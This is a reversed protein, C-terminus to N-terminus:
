KKSWDTVKGTRNNTKTGDASYTTNISDPINKDVFEKASIQGDKISEKLLDLGKEGISNPANNRDKELQVKTDDIKQKIDHEPKAITKDLTKELVGINEKNRSINNIDQMITENGSNLQKEVYHKMQDSSKSEKEVETKAMSQIKNFEKMEQENLSHTKTEGNSYTVAIGNKVGTEASAEAKVIFGGGIGIGVKAAFDSSLTQENGKRQEKSESIQENLIQAMKHSEQESRSQESSQSKDWVEGGVKAYDVSKSGDKNLTGSIETSGDASKTTFTQVGKDDTKVEATGDGGTYTRSREEGNAFTTTTSSGNGHNVTVDGSMINGKQDFIAGDSVTGSYQKGDSGTFTGTAQGNLTKQGDDGTKMSGTINQSNVGMGMNSAVNNLASNSGIDTQIKNGLEGSQTNVSNQNDISSGSKNTYSDNQQYDFGSNYSLMGKTSNANYNNHSVNGMSLNGSSVSGATATSTRDLKMSLSNNLAALSTLSFGTVIIMAITPISWYMASATNIWDTISSDIAGKNTFAMDGYRILANKVKITIIHNLIVDGFHWCALWALMLIYGIITKVGIPTIMLLMLLPTLGLIIVTLIGKMVPIFKAGLAGSIAMQATAAASAQAVGFAGISSDMGNIAAYRNFSNSFMNMTTNQMLVQQASKASDLLFNNAEGLKTYVISSAVGGLSEGLHEMGVGSFSTYTTLEGSITGYAKPCTTLYPENNDKSRQLLYRAPHTDGLYAFLNDARALMMFDKYGSNIDPMVCEIIYQEFNDYLSPTTIVHKTSLDFVSIPTLFGSNSYSMGTPIDTAVEYMAGLRYEMTSFFSFPKAVAWPVKVVMASKNPDVKDEIWVDTHSAMFVTYVGTAIIIVKPIKMYDPNPSLSTVVASILAIAMAIKWIDRFEAIGFIYKISQLTEAVLDGYGWAYITHVDAFAITSFLILLILIKRIM